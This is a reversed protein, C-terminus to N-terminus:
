ELLSPPPSEAAEARLVSAVAGLVVFVALLMMPPIREELFFAGELIAIVPVILSITSLQYPLVHRLLWYYLAFAVASGVVALFILAVFAPVSWRSTMGAEAPLSVAFLLVAGVLLQLGTSVAPDLHLTEHKAYHVSWASAIVAALVALGGALTHWSVSLGSSFLVAIGGVGVVMSFVARRPVRQGSMWPTLLAVALPSCSFLVATMSSTIYKEAWFVLGFPFAMMTLGLITIANWEARARPLPTRRILVFLMLLFAAILFRIAAARLPPVDRVLVRIALWTTGWIGCLIAYVVWHRLRLHRLDQPM